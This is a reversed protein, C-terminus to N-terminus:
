FSCYELFGTEDSCGVGLPTLKGKYQLSRKHEHAM